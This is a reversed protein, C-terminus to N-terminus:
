PSAITAGYLLVGFLALAAAPLLRRARRAWFSRLPVRAHDHPRTLLLCTILFGSLTFFLSVGLYGGRAFGFQSHYLLVAAVALGRLGDLAGVRGPNTPTDVAARRVRIALAPRARVEGQQDPGRQVRELTQA